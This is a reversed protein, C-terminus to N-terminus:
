STKQLLLFSPLVRRKSTAREAGPSARTFLREGSSRLLSQSSAGRCLSPSLKLTHLTLNLWLLGYGYILGNHMKQLVHQRETECPECFSRTPQPSSPRSSKASPVRPSARVVGCRNTPPGGASHEPVLSCLRRSRRLLLLSAAESTLQGPWEKLSSLWQSRVGMSPSASWGMALRKSGEETTDQDPWTPPPACGGRPRLEHCLWPCCVLGAPHREALLCSFLGQGPGPMSIALRGSSPGPPDQLAKVVLCLISSERGPESRRCQQATNPVQVLPQWTSGGCSPANLLRRFFILSCPDHRFEAWLAAVSSPFWLFLHRKALGEKNQVAIVQPTCQCCSRLAKSLTCGTQPRGCVTPLPIM